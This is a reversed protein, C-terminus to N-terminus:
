RARFAGGSGFVSQLLSRITRTGQGMVGQEFNRINRAGPLSMEILKNQLQTGERQMDIWKERAHSEFRDQQLKYQSEDQVDTQKKMLKLEQSLRRQQQASAIAPGVADEVTAQAGSGASGMPSGAGGQSYALAPNIGAAEMDAVGAQWETNKMREQFAMQKVAQGSQFARNKVAEQKNAKNASRQGLYSGIAPFIGFILM